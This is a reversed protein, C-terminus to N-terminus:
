KYMLQNICMFVGYFLIERRKSINLCFLIMVTKM